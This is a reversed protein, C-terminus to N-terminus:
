GDFSPLSTFRDGSEVGGIAIEGDHEVWAHAQLQGNDARAVGIRLVSVVGRRSLLARAALAQTLCTAGPFYRSAVRVAWVVRQVAAIREASVKRPHSFRKHARMLVRFPVVWLGIRITAVALAANILLRRENPPLGHFQGVRHNFRQHFPVMCHIYHARASTPLRRDCHRCKM